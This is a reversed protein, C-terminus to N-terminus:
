KLDAHTRGQATLGEDLLRDSGAELRAELESLMAKPNMGPTIPPLVEYVVKGPTRVMGHAPWCLGSNTALPLMPVDLTKYFARVGAPKYDPAAGPDSALLSEPDPRFTPLKRAEERGSRVEFKVVPM